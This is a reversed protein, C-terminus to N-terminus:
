PEAMSGRTRALLLCMESLVDCVVRMKVAAPPVSFPAWVKARHATAGLRRSLAGYRLTQDGVTVTRADRDIATVEGAVLEINSGALADRTRLYVWEEPANGALYDKSLNPRDVPDSGEASVITVKGAYGEQRLTEACAVGAAGGGVIIVSAPVGAPVTLHDTEQRAGVRLKGGVLEVDFCAIPAIAPGRAAGTALDFCAHHWPCHIVGREVLGEALPGGYHTCTAGVAHVRGADRVLVIAEGHAHGLLPAGERLDADPIGAALDPGSLPADSSM